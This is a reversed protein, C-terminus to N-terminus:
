ESIRMPNFSMSTAQEIDNEDLIGVEVLEMLEKRSINWEQERGKLMNREVIAVRLGKSSLATAIFIGLTGGCVVVDFTDVAKDALQSRSNKGPFNSVVQQPEQQVTQPPASCISSWITDLRKLAQYSYAGGAGGVEGSTSSSIREMIKQTTTTSSSPAAQLRIFLQQKRTTPKKTGRRERHLLLPLPHYQFLGNCSSRLQIM